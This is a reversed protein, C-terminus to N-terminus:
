FRCTGQNPNERVNDEGTYELSLFIVKYGKDQIQKALDLALVTMSTTPNIKTMTLSM